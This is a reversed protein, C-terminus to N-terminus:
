FLLELFYPIFIILGVIVSVIANILVAGAACDKALKALPHKQPSCLDITAEIATNILELSIVMGFLLCCIMWEFLTIHLLFGCIIVIIMVVFHIKINREKKLCAVIGEIAYGMSKYFPDKMKILEGKIIDFFYKDNM